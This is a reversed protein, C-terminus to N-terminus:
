PLGASEHGRRLGKEALTRRLEVELRLVHEVYLHSRCYGGLGLFGFLGDSGTRPRRIFHM